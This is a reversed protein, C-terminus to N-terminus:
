FNSIGNIKLGIIFIHNKINESCGLLCMCEIRDLLGKITSLISFLWISMNCLLAFIWYQFKNCLSNIHLLVVIRSCCTNKVASTEKKTDRAIPWPQLIKIGPKNKMPSKKVKQFYQRLFTYLIAVSVIPMKYM